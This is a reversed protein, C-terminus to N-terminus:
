VSMPRQGAAIKGASATVIRFLEIWNIEAICLARQSFKMLDLRDCDDRTVGAPILFIQRAAELSKIRDIGAQTVGSSEGFPAGDSMVLVTPTNYPRGQANYGHLLSALEDCALELSKGFFTRGSAELRHPQFQSFHTFPYSQPSECITTIGIEASRSLYRDDNILRKAEAIGDNLGDIRAPSSPDDQVTGYNMSGSTDVILMIPTSKVQAFDAQLAM